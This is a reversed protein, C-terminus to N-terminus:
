EAATVGPWLHAFPDVTRVTHSAIATVPTRTVALVFVSPHTPLMWYEVSPPVVYVDSVHVEHVAPLVLVSVVRMLTSPLASLGAFLVLHQFPASQTM